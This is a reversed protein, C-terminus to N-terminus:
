ATTKNIDSYDWSLNRENPPILNGYNKNPIKYKHKTGVIDDM